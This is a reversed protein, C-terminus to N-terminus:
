FVVGFVMGMVAPSHEFSHVLDKKAYVGLYKTADLNYNVGFELMLREGDYYNDFLDFDFM